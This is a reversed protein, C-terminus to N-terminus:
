RKQPRCYKLIHWLAFYSSGAPAWVGIQPNRLFLIDVMEKNDRHVGGGDPAIGDIENDIDDLSCSSYLGDFYSYIKHVTLATWKDQSEWVVLLFEEEQSINEHQHIREFLVSIHEDSLDSARLGGDEYILSKEVRRLILGRLYKTDHKNRM